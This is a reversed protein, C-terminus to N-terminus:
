GKAPAYRRLAAANNAGAGRRRFAHARREQHAEGPAAQLQGQQHLLVPLHLVPLEGVGSRCLCLTDFLAYLKFPQGSCYILIVVTNSQVIINDVSYVLKVRVCVCNCVGM